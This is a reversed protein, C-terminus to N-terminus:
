AAKDKAVKSELYDAYRIAYNYPGIHGIMHNVNAWVEGGAMRHRHCFAIDESFEEDGVVMPNFLQLLCGSQALTKAGPHGRMGTKVVEPQNEIINKVAERSIMLVGGGVGEVKLFGKVMDSPMADDHTTRGVPVAPWQRRAYFCGMVPKNFEIFDRFLPLPPEMDSDIMLIHSFDPHEYYWKTIFINRLAVIDAASMWCFSAKISNLTLYQALNFLSQTTQAFNVQNYAPMCVLISKVKKFM